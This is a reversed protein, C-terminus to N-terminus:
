SIRAPRWGKSPSVAISMRMFAELSRTVGGDLAEMTAGSGAISRAMSFMQRLASARFGLSRYGVAFANAWSRARQSLPSTTDTM